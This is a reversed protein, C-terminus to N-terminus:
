VVPLQITFRSGQGIQSEVSVTGEMAEVLDKVLTLGLGSGRIDQQRASEARYFREWIHPLDEPAIGQGTDKVQIMLQGDGDCVSLAVIGGPPTHRVGNRILNHLVQELRVRDVMVAPLDQQVDVVVEVRQKQWYIPAIARVVNEVVAGIDVPQRNLDLQGVEARALTFLDDLMHQLRQTEGLMIDTDHNLAESSIVEGRSQLSELHGNIIAVPTRLEHSISAMLERRSALLQTVADREASLEAMTDQLAEAMANFDSQLSAVEDEGQVQVRTEYSGARVSATAEALTKIRRTTRRAAFYALVIAPPLVAVLILLMMVLVIVMLPVLNNLARLSAREELTYTGM